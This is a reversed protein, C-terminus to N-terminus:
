KAAAYDYDGQAQLWRAEAAALARAADARTKALTAAQIPDRAFVDPAALQAYCYIGFRDHDHNSFL